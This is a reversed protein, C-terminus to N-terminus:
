ARMMQLLAILGKFGFSGEKYSVFLPTDETGFKAQSPPFELSPPNVDTCRLSFSLFLFFSLFSLRVRFQGRNALGYKSVVKKYAKGLMKIKWGDLNHEPHIEDTASAGFTLQGRGEFQMERIVHGLIGESTGGPASPQSPLLSTSSLSPLLPFPPTLAFCLFLYLPPFRVFTV